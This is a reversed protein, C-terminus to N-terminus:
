QWAATVALGDVSVLLRITSGPEPQEPVAVIARWRANRFDRFAAAVGVFRVKPDLQFRVAGRGDPVLAFEHRAVLTAALTAAEQEWLAFFEARTFAGDETLQYTRVSVPSARGGADPNASASAAAEIVVTVPPPPPEVVPAKACGTVGAAVLLGALVM